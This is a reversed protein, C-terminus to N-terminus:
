HILPLLIGGREVWASAASQDFDAVALAQILTALYTFAEIMVPDDVLGAEWAMEPESSGIDVVGLDRECLSSYLPSLVYELMDGSGVIDGLTLRLSTDACILSAQLYLGDPASVEGAADVVTQLEDLLGQARGELTSGFALLFSAELAEGVVSGGPIRTLIEASAPYVAKGAIAYLAAQRTPQLEDIQSALAKLDERYGPM